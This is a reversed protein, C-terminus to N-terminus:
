FCDGARDLGYEFIDKNLDNSSSTYKKWDSEKVIHRKRVKGKLPPRTVKKQMKKQGIYFKGSEKDTIRYVFGLPQNDFFDEPLELGIM